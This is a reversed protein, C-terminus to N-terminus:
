RAFYRETAAAACRNGGGGCAADGAEKPRARGRVKSVRSESASVFEAVAGM